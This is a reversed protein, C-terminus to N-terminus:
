YRVFSRGDAFKKVIEDIKNQLGEPRDCRREADSTEIVNRDSV